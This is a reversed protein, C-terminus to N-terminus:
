WSALKDLKTRPFVYQFQLLFENNYRFTGPPAKFTLAPNPSTFGDPYRVKSPDDLLRASALCKMTASPTQSLRDEVSTNIGRAKLSEFAMGKNDNPRVGQAQERERAVEKLIAEHQATGFEAAKARVRREIAKKRQYEAERRAEEAEQEAQEQEMEGIKRKVEDEIEGILRELVDEDIAAPPKPQKTLAKATAEARAAEETKRDGFMTSDSTSRSSLAPIPQRIHFDINRLGAFRKTPRSHCIDRYGPHVAWGDENHVHDNSQLLSDTTYTM